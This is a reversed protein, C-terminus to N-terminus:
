SLKHEVVYRTIEANSALGTKEMIRTRYTSITKVSLNLQDGIQTLGKGSGILCFVELERDSLLKHPEDSGGQHVFTALIDAVDPSIYKEGRFAKQIAAVLDDPATEKTLYGAAGAKLVRLAYQDSPHMSLVLVPIAPYLRKLDKLTELGNRGPMTIDLVIVDAEVTRLLDFVENGNSAEGAVTIDAERDLLQRLGHRVITHDDALIVNM